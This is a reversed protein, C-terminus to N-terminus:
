VNKYIEKTFNIYTNLFVQFKILIHWASLLTVLNSSIGVQIYVFKIYYIKIIQIHYKAALKYLYINFNFIYNHTM